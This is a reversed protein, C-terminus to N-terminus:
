YNRRLQKRHTNKHKNHNRNSKMLIAHIIPTADVYNYVAHLYTINRHAEYDDGAKLLATIPNADIKKLKIAGYCAYLVLIFGVGLANGVQIIAAATITTTIINITASSIILRPM